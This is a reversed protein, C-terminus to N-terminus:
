CPSCCICFNIDMIYLHVILISDVVFGPNANQDINSLPSDLVFGPNANQDINSLPSRRISQNSANQDITSLPVRGTAKLAYDSECTVAVSAYRRSSSLLSHSNGVDNKGSSINDFASSTGITRSKKINEARRQLFLDLANGSGQHRSIALSGDAQNEKNRKRGSNSWNIMPQQSHSDM